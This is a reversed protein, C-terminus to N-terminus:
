NIYYIKKININKIIIFQNNYSHLLLLLIIIIIVIKNIYDIKKIKFIYM